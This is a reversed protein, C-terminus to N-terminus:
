AAADVTLIDFVFQRPLDVAEVDQQQVAPAVKAAVAAARRRTEAARCMIDRLRQQTENRAPEEMYYADYQAPETGPEPLDNLRLTEGHLDGKKRFYIRKKYPVPVPQAQTPQQLLFCPCKFLARIKEDKGELADWSSVSGLRVATWPVLKRLSETPLMPTGSEFPRLHLQLGEMKVNIAPVHITSGQDMVQLQLEPFSSRANLATSGQVFDVEKEDAHTWRLSEETNV